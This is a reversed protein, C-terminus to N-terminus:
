PTATRVGKKKGPISDTELAYTLTYSRGDPSDYAYVSSGSELPDRPIAPLVGANLLALSLDDTGTIPGAAIPFVRANTVYLTLAKQLEQIEREREADRARARYSSFQVFAFSGVTAIIAIVVLLEIVTFGRKSKDRPM